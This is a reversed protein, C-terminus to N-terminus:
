GIGFTEGAFAAAAPHEFTIRRDKPRLAFVNSRLLAAKQEPNPVLHNWTELDIAKNPTELLARVVACGADRQPTDDLIGAAQFEDEAAALVDRRVDEVSDGHLLSEVAGVLTIFRGGTVATVATAVEKPIGRKQLYSETQACSLDGFEHSGSRSCRTRGCLWHIFADDSSVFVARIIGEDAWHDVVDMLIQLQSPDEQLREADDIVLVAPRAYRRWYERAASALADMATDLQSPADSQSGVELKLVNNYILRLPNPAPELLNMASALEAGFRGPRAAARVYVVGRGVQQAVRQILTTKGGGPPGTIFYFLSSAHSGPGPALLAVVFAAEEPRDVYFQPSPSCADALAATPSVIHVRAGTMRQLVLHRRLSGYAASSAVCASTVALGTQFWAPQQAFWRAFRPSTLM